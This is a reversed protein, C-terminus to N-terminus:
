KRAKGSARWRVTKAGLYKCTEAERRGKTERVKQTVSAKETSSNLEFGKWALVVQKKGVKYKIVFHIVVWCSM